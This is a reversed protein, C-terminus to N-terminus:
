IEVSEIETNEIPLLNIKVLGFFSQSPELMVDRHYGHDEIKLVDGSKLKVLGSTYCSNTKPKHAVNHNLQTM